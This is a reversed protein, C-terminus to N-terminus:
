TKTEATMVRSSNRRVGKKQTILNSKVQRLPDLFVVNRSHLEVGLINPRLCPSTLSTTDKGNEYSLTEM